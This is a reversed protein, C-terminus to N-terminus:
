LKSLTEAGENLLGQVYPIRVEDPIMYTVNGTEDVKLITVYTGNPGIPAKVTGNLPPYKKGAM